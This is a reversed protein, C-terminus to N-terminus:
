SEGTKQLCQAQKVSSRKKLLYRRKSIYLM